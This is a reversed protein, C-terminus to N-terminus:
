PLNPRNLLLWSWISQCLQATVGIGGSASVQRHASGLMRTTSGEPRRTSFLGSFRSPAASTLRPTHAARCARRGRVCEALSNWTLCVWPSLRVQPWGTPRRQFSQCNTAPSDAAPLGAGGGGPRPLSQLPPLRPQVAIPTDWTYLWHNAPSSWFSISLFSSNYDYRSIFDVRRGDPFAVNDSDLSCILSWKVM